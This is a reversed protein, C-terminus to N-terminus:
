RDADAQRRPFAVLVLDDEVEDSAARARPTEPAFIDAAGADTPAPRRPAEAAAGALAAALGRLEMQLSALESQAADSRCLRAVSALRGALDTLEQPVSDPLLEDRVLAIHTELRRMSAILTKLDAPRQRRAYESLFSRGKATSSLADLIEQYERDGLECPWAMGAM